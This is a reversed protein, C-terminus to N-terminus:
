KVELKEEIKKILAKEAPFFAKKRTKSSASHWEGYLGKERDSLEDWHETQLDDPKALEQPGYVQEFDDSGYFSSGISTSGKGSWYGKAWKGGPAGLRTVNGWISNLVDHYKKGWSYREATPKFKEYDIELIVKRIADAYAERTTYFRCNYDMDPNLQLENHFTGPEMYNDMFHQLHEAVRGRVQLDYKGETFATDALDMPVSAPMLLGFPTFDWM